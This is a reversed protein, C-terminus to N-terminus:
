ELQLVAAPEEWSTVVRQVCGYVEDQPVGVVTGGPTGYASEGFRAVPGLVETGSIQSRVAAPANGCTLRFLGVAVFMYRFM